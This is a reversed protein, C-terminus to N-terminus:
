LLKALWAGLGRALAALATLLRHFWGPEPISGPNSRGAAQGAATAPAEAEAASAAESEAVASAGAPAASSGAASSRLKAEEDQLTIRVTRSRGDWEVSGGFAEGVFRAPVMTFGGVLQAPAELEIPRGNRYATRSGIQLTIQAEGKRAAITKTAADWEVEAGMAEFVARLPALTSGDQVIPPQDFAIAKGNVEVSVRSSLPFRRLAKEEGAQDFVKIELVSGEPVDGAQLEIGYPLETQEALLKGNLRYEIKGIYVEPIKVFPTIKTSQAFSEGAALPVHGIGDQPRAGQEVKTLYFPSAIMRKYLALMEENDQLLYNNKSERMELNVNFYTIAKLRPYKAPMVEYLRQLNMLGYEAFSEGTMNARHSVATESIMLPKRDAYTKYLYDLREVPSTALMSGQAPDGNEYPSTYMSVGVWDVYEDGPYYADISYMPVDGPSWVMAVNPAEREMIDHVLRFKEIYLAPDGHWVVWAGNMESAYRLFIPIGAAKAEKAWATVVEETVAELGGEPEWGIQLAAVAEKARAAHQRPFPKGVQTYALYMAHNKGYISESRTYYNGMKPDLESYMGIYLGYEPEFKALKAASSAAQRRLTESEGVTMYAEVITRLQDARQLDVAGWDKGLKLWYENELEYYHIAQEYDRVSDYYQNLRGSFLAANEWEGASAYHEVLFKWHPVAEAPKGGAVAADAAKWRDWIADAQAPLPALSSALLVSAAACLILRRLAMGAAFFPRTRGGQAPRAGIDHNL